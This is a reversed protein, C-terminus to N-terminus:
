WSRPNRRRRENAPKEEKEESGKSEKESTSSNSQEQNSSEVSGSGSSKKETSKPASSSSASSQERSPVGLSRSRRSRREVSSDSNSSSAAPRGSSSKPQASSGSRPRRSGSSGSPVGYSRSRRDIRRRADGTGSSGSSSSGGSPQRTYPYSYYRMDQYHRCRGSYRDYYYYRPCRGYDYPVDYSRYWWPSHRYRFWDYSYRSEYCHLVPDGFFDRTWYCIERETDKIVVTDPGKERSVTTSDGSVVSDPPAGPPESQDLTALQTYCGVGLLAVTGALVTTLKRRM